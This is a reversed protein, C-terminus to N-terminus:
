RGKRTPATRGPVASKSVSLGSTKPGGKAHKAGPAPNQAKGTQAAKAPGAAQAKHSRNSGGTAYTAARHMSEKKSHPKTM